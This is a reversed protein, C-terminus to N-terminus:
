VQVREGFRERLAERARAGLGNDRLDLRVIRELHPSRALALGGRDGVQNSALDLWGLSALHPCEALAVAGADGMLYCRLGEVWPWGDQGYLRELGGPELFLFSVVLHVM